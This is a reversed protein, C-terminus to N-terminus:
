PEEFIRKVRREMEGPLGEGSHTDIAHVLFDGDESARVTITGPTLTISNAMTVLSLDRTLDCHFRIMHPDIVRRTRPHFTLYLLHTNAKFIEWILWPIYLTFRWVQRNLGGPGPRPPFLLGGSFWAVGACSVVGLGLHFADFRGSLIVWLGFFLPFSLIFSRLRANLRTFRPRADFTDSEAQYRQEPNPPKM